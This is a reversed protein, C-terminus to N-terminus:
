GQGSYQPQRHFCVNDTSARQHYPANNCYSVEVRALLSVQVVNLFRSLVAAFRSPAVVVVVPSLPLQFILLTGVHSMRVITPTGLQRDVKAESDAM